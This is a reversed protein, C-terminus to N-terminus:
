ESHERKFWPFRSLRTSRAADVHSIRFTPSLAVCIESHSAVYSHQVLTESVNLAANEGLCLSGVPYNVIGREPVFKPSRQIAVRNEQLFLAKQALLDEEGAM